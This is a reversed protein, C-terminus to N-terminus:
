TFDEAVSKAFLEHLEENTLPKKNTKLSGMLDFFDRVPKLVIQDNEISVIVKKPNKFQKRIKSPISIQGQSTINVTYIM